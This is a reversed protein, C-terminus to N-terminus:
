LIYSVINNTRIKYHLFIVPVAVIRNAVGVDGRRADGVDGCRAAGVLLWAYETFVQILCFRNDVYLSCSLLYVGFCTRASSETRTCLGNQYNLCSYKLPASHTNTNCSTSSVSLSRSWIPSFRPALVRKLAPMSFRLNSWM